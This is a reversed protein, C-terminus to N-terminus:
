YKFLKLHRKNFFIRRPVMCEGGVIAEKMQQLMVFLYETCMTSVDEGGMWEEFEELRTLTM